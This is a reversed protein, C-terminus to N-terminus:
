WTLRAAGIQDDAMGYFVDASHDDRVDIATPFVVNPVIGVREESTEPALVPEATREIVRSVDAADHVMIGASYRVFPQHDTGSVIRGAVGHYISLWGRDIKVPPTGGGIKVHEWPQQPGAVFRHLFVRTLEAPDREVRDAPAFSVWIGPRTDIVGGPAQAGEGAIIQGLDWDPRHLMAYSPTGDPASVPESLLLADKNIYSNLDVGLTDDYAFSMPGLRRWTVLDESIALAIRAHLPGYATYTMVWADLADIRTIRPDEVGATRRNREWPREPELVVGLREVAIPDGNDDHRVRVRAVRSVNGRAVVRPFLYLQGDPGRASAPNLVGEAEVADGNSTMVVGLRRM